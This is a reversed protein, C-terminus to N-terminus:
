KPMGGAQVILQQVQQSFEQGRHAYNNFMDFSACAPSLLVVDGNQALGSSKIVADAMDAAFVTKVSGPVVAAILKADRGILVVARAFRQVAEGLPSFDADKGEGGAVLVVPRGMGELAAITAGVNTGKSDNVWLVGGVDAVPQCRHPLGNYERIASEVEAFPLNFEDILALVALVNAVNHLGPIKISSVPMLPKAGKFVFRQGNHDAIGFDNESEPIALTFFRVRRGSAQMAMVVRDDRNLVMTGNGSYIRRKSEAYDEIDRYRDMHDASINLVVASQADLSHTTELQFSSLELVYVEPVPQQLLDLVPVGINGGVEVRRGCYRLIHGTLDTVTSKGNAGTIAIVPAKAERAFLEVDGVLQHGSKIYEGLSGERISLGPSVAVLGYGALREVSPMGSEFVAEPCEQQLRELMPPQTRTDMVEVSYGHSLLFRASSLGTQGLGLVLAMQKSDMNMAMASNM